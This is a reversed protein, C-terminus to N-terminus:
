YGRLMGFGLCDNLVRDFDPGYEQVMEEWKKDRDKTAAKYESEAKVYMEHAGMLQKLLEDVMEKKAGLSKELAMWEKPLAENGFKLRAVMNEQPGVLSRIRFEGLREFRAPSRKDGGGGSALWFPTVRIQVKQFTYPYCHEITEFLEKAERGVVNGRWLEVYPDETNFTLSGNLCASSRKTASSTDGMKSSNKTPDLEPEETKVMASKRQLRSSSRSPEMTSGNDDRNAM